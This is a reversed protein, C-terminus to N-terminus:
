KKKSEKLKKMQELRDSISDGVWLFIRGKATFKNRNYKDGGNCCRTIDSVHINLERGAASASPYGKVFKGDLTYEDVERYKPKKKSLRYLEQKVEKVRQKIDGDPYLFIRKDVFLRIGKCCNSVLCPTTKNAKSAIISTPWKAILRGGLTYEYVEKAKSAYPFNWEKRFDIKKLREAIDEGRYTFITQTKKSYTYCKRCINNIARASMNHYLAAQRANEFTRLYEGELSYEVVKKYLEHRRKTPERVQMDSFDDPSMVVTDDNM